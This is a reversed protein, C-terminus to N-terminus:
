RRGGPTDMAWSDPLYLEFDIPLHETRAAISPSVGVQCNTVKGASGTYQRQV